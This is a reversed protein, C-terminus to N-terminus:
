KGVGTFMARSIYVKDQESIKANTLVAQGAPTLALYSRRPTRETIEGWFESPIRREMKVLRKSLLARMDRTLPPRGETGISFAYYDGILWLLANLRRAAPPHVLPTAAKYARVYDDHRKQADAMAQITAPNQSPGALRAM